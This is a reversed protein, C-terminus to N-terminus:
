RGDATHSRCCDSTRLFDLASPLVERSLSPSPKCQPPVPAPSPAQAAQPSGPPLPSQRGYPSRSPAPGYGTNPDPHSPLVPLFFSQNLNEPTAPHASCPYRHKDCYMSRITRKWPLARLPPSLRSVPPYGEWATLDERLQTHNACARPSPHVKRYLCAPPIKNSNM